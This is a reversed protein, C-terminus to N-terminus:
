VRPTNSYPCKLTSSWSASNELLPARAGARESCPQDFTMRNRHVSEGYPLDIHPAGQRTLLLRYVMHLRAGRVARM